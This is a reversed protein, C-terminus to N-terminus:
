LCPQQFRTGQYQTRCTGTLSSQKIYVKRQITKSLLYYFYTSTFSSRETKAKPSLRPASTLTKDAFPTITTEATCVITIKCHYALVCALLFSDTESKELVFSREFSISVNLLCMLLNIVKTPYLSRCNLTRIVNTQVLSSIYRRQEYQIFGHWFIAKTM